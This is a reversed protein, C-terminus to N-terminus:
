NRLSIIKEAFAIRRITEVDHLATRNVDM